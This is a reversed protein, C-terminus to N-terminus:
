ALLPAADVPYRAALDRARALDAACLAGRGWPRHRLRFAQLLVEPAVDATYGLTALAAAMEAADVPGAGQADSWVALGRLALRRWDFRAGPDIKRGPAICSHGVIREVPVGHRAKLGSLLGELAAMQPEAFPTGGTNVLEIGISHSNVDELAGWRGAGAHWARMAEDVLQWVRGEPCIVYHASVEAEANCLWDIVARTEAMATYHVVIM